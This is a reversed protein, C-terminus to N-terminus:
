ICLSSEYIGHTFFAQTRVAQSDHCPTFITQSVRAVLLEEDQRGQLQTLFVDSTRHLVM